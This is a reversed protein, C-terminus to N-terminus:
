KRIWVHLGKRTEHREVTWDLAGLKALWWEAPKVILHANRGDPLKERAPSLAIVLYAAKGTLHHLHRLVGDLKEPEIHELVDTCVLLDGPKPLGDKGPIGPDYEHVRVPHLAKALTGRGCGYDLITEPALREILARVEPAHSHGDAGWNMAKHKAQLQKRYAPSALDDAPIRYTGAHRMFMGVHGLDLAHVGKQALRWALVTAAPGLCLIVPGDPEGIEREIRDIEAYADRYPGRVVRLRAAGDLDTERLSRDSGIVLTTDKGTWLGRVKAWYDPRDIWPASDPRSIFASGYPGRNWLGAFKGGTYDNAWAKRPSAYANPICPLCAASTDLAVKRLEAQLRKDAAQAVASGGIMLRMEGDGYRALSYGQLARDLTEDESLVPPYTM